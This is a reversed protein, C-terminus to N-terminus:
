GEKPSWSEGQCHAPLTLVAMKLDWTRMDSDGYAYLKGDQIFLQNVFFKFTWHFVRERFWGAPVM